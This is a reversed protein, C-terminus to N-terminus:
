LVEHNYRKNLTEGHAKTKKHLHKENQPGTRSFPPKKYFTMFFPSKICFEM